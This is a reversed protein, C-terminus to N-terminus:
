RERESCISMCTYLCVCMVIVFAASMVRSSWLAWRQKVFVRECVDASFLNVYVCIFVRLVIVDVYVCIFVRLIIVNAYVCIFVRLVIVNAYVCVFVHLVIVNGRFHSAEQSSM